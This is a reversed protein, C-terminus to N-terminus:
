YTPALRRFGHLLVIALFCLNRLLVAVPNISPANLPASGDMSDALTEGLHKMWGVSRPYETIEDLWEGPIGNPGVGASVIGGVIAATTDADGGCEIIATIAGRFDRPHSLWAPIVVPITHYTYGTVGKSLGLSEAFAKTSGGADASEIAGRLLDTMEVGDKGVADVVRSLWLNPDIAEYERSHSAALAVAISRYEAKPDSHTLRSSARVMDLMLPGADFTAGFIAARLEDCTVELRKDPVATHRM